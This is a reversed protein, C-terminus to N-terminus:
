TDHFRLRAQAFVQYEAAAVLQNGYTVLYLAGTSLDGIAAPNTTSKYHTELNNLRIFENINVRNITYDIIQNSADGGGNDPISIRIDRLMIFRESNNMNLFSLSNTTTAGANDYNLLLDAIAPFGPGATNYGPQRDYVVMIRLYEPAGVGLAPTIPAVFGTLHLSRMMVKRGIRNYFSAGEQVGNLLAFTPTTSIPVTYPSSGAIPFDVSKVEQRNGQLRAPLNRPINSTNRGINAILRKAAAVGELRAQEHLRAKKKTLVDLGTIRKRKM